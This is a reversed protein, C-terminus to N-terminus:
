SAVGMKSRKEQKNSWFFFDSMGLVEQFFFEAQCPSEYSVARRKWPQFLFCTNNVTQEPESLFLFLLTAERSLTIEPLLPLYIITFMDCGCDPARSPRRHQPSAWLACRIHSLFWLITNGSIEIKSHFSWSWPTITSIALHWAFCAPLHLVSQQGPISPLFFSLSVTHYDPRLVALGRSKALCPSRQWCSGLCMWWVWGFEQWSADNYVFTQRLEISFVHFSLSGVWEESLTKGNPCIKLTVKRGM